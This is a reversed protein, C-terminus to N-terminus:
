VGEMLGRTWRTGYPPNGVRGGRGRRGRRERWERREKRKMRERRERRRTGHATAGGRNTGGTEEARRGEQGHSIDIICTVILYYRIAKAGKRPTTGEILKLIIIQKLKGFSPPMEAMSTFKMAKSKSM